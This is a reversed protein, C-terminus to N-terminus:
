SAPYYWCNVWIVDERKEQDYGVLFSLSLDKYAVSQLKGESEITFRPGSMIFGDKLNALGDLVSFIMQKLDDSALSLLYAPFKACLSDNASANWPNQGLV